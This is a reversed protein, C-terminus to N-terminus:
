SRLEAKLNQHLIKIIKDMSEDVEKETLTRQESYFLFSFAVSKKGSEIQKGTYVDFLNVSRLIDIKTNWIETYIDKVALKNDILLALDRKMSPFKPIQKFKKDRKQLKFIVEFDLEAAFVETEIDFKSLIDKKLAGFYGIKQHNDSEIELRRFDFITNNASEIFRYETINLRSLFTEIDGKLDFFKVTRPKELWNEDSTNGTTLFSIKKNELNSKNKKIWHFVNGIEFLKLNEMRRNINRNAILLMGPILSNRLVSLDESLPNILQISEQNSFQEIYNPNILTNTLIEHYGMGIVLQQTKSLLFELENRKTILNINSSTNEEIRNYGYTRAIEEILDAERFVDPRFTPVTVELTDPGDMIKFELSSLIKIIESKALETGLVKNVRDIRLQISTPTIPKPYNDIHGKGANGGAIEIILQTARDLAFILGNPDVGREFRQSSDSSLGLYKATRRINLPNFYASELLIKVTNESVESNLGGMVGALAVPKEGDCIMLNDNTLSHVQNDLTTFKQGDTANKVVIKKKEILDYDFAHLPQGTEMMVFNTVDVVNNITRIGVAEIKEVLWRPSPGIKVGEIYRASYRPCNEPNKIVVEIYDDVHKDSFEAVTITPKQLKAGNMVAIERAVGIVGLCDPRNPTVDIEIVTEGNKLFKRLDEGVPSDDALEMIVNNQHSIGLEDESCIMGPSEYGHIVAKKIITQDALIAGELAVPVKLNKRVNPAVCLLKIQSSGINVDCITLNPTTEHSHLDVIQGIVVNDFNYSITKVSDVELGSMTLNHALQGAAYQFTVYKKLWDVTVKL